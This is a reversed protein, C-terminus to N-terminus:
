FHAPARRVAATWGNRGDSQGEMKYANNHSLEQGLEM